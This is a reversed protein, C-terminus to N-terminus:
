LTILQALQAHHYALRQQEYDPPDLLSVLQGSFLKSVSYGTRSLPGAGKDSTGAITGRRRLPKKTAWFPTLAHFVFAYRAERLVNGVASHDTDGRYKPVNVVHAVDDPRARVLLGYGFLGPAELVKPHM